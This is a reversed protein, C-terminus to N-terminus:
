LIGEYNELYSDIAVSWKHRAALKKGNLGMATRLAPNELLKSIGQAIECPTSKVLLGGDTAGVSERLVPLDLAVVPKEYAWAEFYVMGFSEGESPVCLLDCAALADQKDEEPLDDLNLIRAKPATDLTSRGADLAKAGGASDAILGGGDQGTADQIKIGAPNAVPPEAAGRDEMKSIRDEPAVRGDVMRWGGDAMQRLETSKPGAIVLTADPFKEAVMPWAELLRGGGKARTKRGLFLVMPGAIGYTARFHAGEGSDIYDFGCSVKRIKASPIGLKEIVRKEHLSYCFMLDAQRYILSDIWTDGWQGEHLAPDVFFKAGARRAAAAAAFGLMEPGNGFYHVVNAGHCEKLLRGCMASVYLWRALPFTWRRWILKFVPSLLLRSFWDVGVVKIEVGEFEFTRAPESDKFYGSLGHRGSTFRALIQVKHGHRKFNQAIRLCAKELGGVLPPANTIVFSIRM